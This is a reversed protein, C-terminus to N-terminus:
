LQSSIAEDMERFRAAITEIDNSHETVLARYRILIDRASDRTENAQDIGETNGVIRRRFRLDLRGGATNIDQCVQQATSDDVKIEM